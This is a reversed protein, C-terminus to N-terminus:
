NLNSTPSLILLLKRLACRGERLASHTAKPKLLREGKCQLAALQRLRM